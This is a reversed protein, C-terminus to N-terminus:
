MKINVNSNEGQRYFNRINEFLPELDELAKNEIPIHISISEEKANKTLDTSNVANNIDVYYFGM